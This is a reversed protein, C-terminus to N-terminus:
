QRWCDSLGQRAGCPRNLRGRAPTAAPWAGSLRPPAAQIFGRRGLSFAVMQMWSCTAMSMHGPEMQGDLRNRGVERVERPLQGMVGGRAPGRGAGAGAAGGVAGAIVVLIPVMEESDLSETRTGARHLRGGLRWLVLQVDFAVLPRSCYTELEGVECGEVPEPKATGAKPTGETGGGRTTANGRPIETVGRRSAM